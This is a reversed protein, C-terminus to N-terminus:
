DETSVDSFLMKATKRLACDINSVSVKKTFQVLHRLSRKSFIDLDLNRVTREIETDEVDKLLDGQYPNHKLGNDAIAIQTLKERAANVVYSPVGALRAVQVGYSQNAAGDKLRYMFAIKDDYEKASLHM